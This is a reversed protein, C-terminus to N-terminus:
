EQNGKQDGKSAEKRLMGEFDQDVAVRLKERITEEVKVNFEEERTKMEEKMKKIEDLTKQAREDSKRQAEQVQNFQALMQARTEARFAMHL